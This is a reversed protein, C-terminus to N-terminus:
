IELALGATKDEGTKIQKMVLEFLVRYILNNQINYIFKLNRTEVILSQIFEKNPRKNTFQIELCHSFLKDLEVSFQDFPDQVSEEDSEDIDSEENSVPAGAGLLESEKLAMNFPVNAFAGKVFFETNYADTKLEEFAKKEGNYQLM